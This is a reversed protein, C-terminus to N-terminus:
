FGKQKASLSESSSKHTKIRQHDSIVQLLGATFFSSNKHLLHRRWRCVSAFIQVVSRPQPQSSQKFWCFSFTRTGVKLRIQTNKVHKSSENKDHVNQFRWYIVWMAAIYDKQPFMPTLDVSLAQKLQRCASTTSMKNFSLIWKTVLCSFTKSQLRAPHTTAQALNDFYSLYEATVKFFSNKSATGGLSSWAATQSASMCNWRRGGSVVWMEHSKLTFWVHIQPSLISELWKVVLNMEMLIMEMLKALHPVELSNHYINIRCM